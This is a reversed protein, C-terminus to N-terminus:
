MHVWVWVQLVGRAYFCRTCGVAAPLAAGNCTVDRVRHRTHVASVSDVQGDAKAGVRLVQVLVIVGCDANHLQLLRRLYAQVGQAPTHVFLRPLKRLLPLLRTPTHMFLRPLPVCSCRPLHLAELVLTM